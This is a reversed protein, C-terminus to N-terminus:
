TSKRGTKSRAEGADGYIERLLDQLRFGELFKAIAKLEEM